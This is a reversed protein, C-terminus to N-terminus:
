EKSFKMRYFLLETGLIVLALSIWQYETMGFGVVPNVRCFEVGFRM